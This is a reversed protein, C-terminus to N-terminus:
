KLFRTLRTEQTFQALRTRHAYGVRRMDIDSECADCPPLAHM